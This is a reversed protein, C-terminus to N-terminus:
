GSLSGAGSLNGALARITESEFVHVGSLDQKAVAIMAAAVVEGSVPRLRGLGPAYSALRAGLRGIAEGLRAEPREGELVSPRFIFVGPLPLARVAEEAEGKIRNYFIRSRPDAGLSSVMLFRRVGSECGVRALEVIATRDVRAFAEQSGAKKITTGLACFVDDVSLADGAPLAEFDVVRELLRPHSRGLPRRVLATVREYAPDALLRELLRGGVLGTAGALAATRPKM